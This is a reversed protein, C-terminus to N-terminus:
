MTSCPAYVHADTVEEVSYIGFHDVIDIAGEFEVNEDGEGEYKQWETDDWSEEEIGSVGGKKGKGKGKKGKGKGKAKADKAAKKREEAAKIQAPTRNPCDRGYHGMQWCVNCSGEPQRNSKGANYTQAGTGKGKGKDAGKGKGVGVAYGM